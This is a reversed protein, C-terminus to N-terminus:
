RLEHKIAEAMEERNPPTYKACKEALRDPVILPTDFKLFRYQAFQTNVMLAAHHAVCVDVHRCMKCSATGARRAVVDREGTGLEDALRDAHTGDPGGADGDNYGRRPQADAGGGIREGDSGQAPSSGGCPPTVIESTPDSYGTIAM